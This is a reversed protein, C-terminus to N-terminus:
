GEIGGLAAPAERRRLRRPEHVGAVVTGRTATFVPHPGRDSSGRQCGSLAFRTVRNNRERGVKIPIRPKPLFM